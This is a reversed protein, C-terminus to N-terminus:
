RSGILMKVTYDLCWFDDDNDNFPARPARQSSEPLEDCNRTYNRIPVFTRHEEFVCWYEKIVAILAAAHEPSLHSLDLDNHLKEKHLEDSYEWNFQPDVADFISPMPFKKKQLIVGGNINHLLNNYDNSEDPFGHDDFFVKRACKAL